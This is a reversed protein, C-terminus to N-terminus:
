GPTPPKSPSKATASLKSVTSETPSEPQSENCTQNLTGGAPWGMLWCVWTPNLSGGLRSRGGASKAGRGKAAGVDPTPFTEVKESLDASGPSRGREEQTKGKSSKYDRQTPTPWKRVAGPLGNRPDEPNNAGRKEPDNARPTPWFKVWRDLSVSKNTEPNLTEKSTSNREIFDQSTPTPIHHTAKVGMEKRWAGGGTGETIRGSTPLEFARGDSAVFGSKPWTPWSEALPMDMRPLLSEQSMRWFSTAPNYKTFSGLSMRTCNGEITMWDPVSDLMALRRALSGRMFAIWKEPTDCELFPASTPKSSKVSQGGATKKEHESFM